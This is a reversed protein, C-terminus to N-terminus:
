RRTRAVYLPMYAGNVQTEARAREEINYNLLKVNEIQYKCTYEGFEFTLQM